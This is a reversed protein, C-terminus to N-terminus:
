QSFIIKCSGPIKSDLSDLNCVALAARRADKESPYGFGVGCAVEPIRDPSQGRTTAFAKHGPKFAYQTKYYKRCTTAASADSVFTFCSAAEIPVVVLAAWLGIVFRNTM